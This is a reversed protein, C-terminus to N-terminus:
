GTKEKRPLRIIPCDEEKEKMNDKAVGKNGIYKKSLSRHHLLRM